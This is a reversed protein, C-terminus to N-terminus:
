KIRTPCSRRRPKNCVGSTCQYEHYAEYCDRCVNLHAAIQSMQHADLGNHCYDSLYEQAVVCSIGSGAHLDDEAGLRLSFCVSFTILAAGLLTLVSVISCIKKAVKSRAFAM